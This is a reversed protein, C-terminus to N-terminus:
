KRLSEIEKIMSQIISISHETGSCMLLRNELPIEKFGNHGCRIDNALQWCKFEAMKLAILRQGDIEPRFQDAPASFLKNVWNLVKKM